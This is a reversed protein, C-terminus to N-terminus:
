VELLVVMKEAKVLLDVTAHEARVDAVKKKFNVPRGINGHEDQFLSTLM